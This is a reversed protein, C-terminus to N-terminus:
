NSIKSWWRLSRTWFSCSCVAVSLCVAMFYANWHARLSITSNCDGYINWNWVLNERFLLLPERHFAITEELSKSKIGQSIYIYIYIYIYICRVATEILKEWTVAAFSVTTRLRFPVVGCLASWTGFKNSTASARVSTTLTLRYLTSEM